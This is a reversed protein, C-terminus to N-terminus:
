REGVAPSQALVLDGGDIARDFHRRTDMEVGPGVVAGHRSGCESARFPIAQAHVEGVGAAMGVRDVEVADM